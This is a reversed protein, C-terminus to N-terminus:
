TVKSFVALPQLITIDDSYLYEYDDIEILHLDEYDLNWEKSTVM